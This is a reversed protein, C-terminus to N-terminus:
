SNEGTDESVTRDCSRVGGTLFASPGSITLERLLAKHVWETSVPM